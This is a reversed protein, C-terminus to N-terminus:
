TSSEAKVLTIPEDNSMQILLRIRDSRYYTHAYEVYWGANSMIIRDMILLPSEPQVELLAAIENTASGAEVFQKGHSLNIHYKERLAAYLSVNNWDFSDLNPFHNFPLHSYEVAVPDHNILRIRSLKYIKKDPSINLKEGIEPGSKQVTMSLLKSLHKDNPSAFADSFGWVTNMSTEVKRNKSVFTGKGIVTHLRGERVLEQVAQRATMRSVSYQQCLNELSPIKEGPLIEQNQIASLLAYKIQKYLPHPGDPRISSLNV